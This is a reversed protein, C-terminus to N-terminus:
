TEKQQQDTPASVVVKEKMMREVKAVVTGVRMVNPFEIPNLVGTPKIVMDGSGFGFVWHRFTDARQKQIAMGTTDYVTEEGGIETRVRVQGPTFIMYTQRDFLAFNIIWLVFLVTSILLYGGMNIHISLQGLKHFIIDWWGAAAFILTLMIVSVFVFVTWLGRISVSTITIVILLVVTFISGLARSRSIFIVPEVPWLDGEEDMYLPLKMDKKLILVDRVEMTGKEDVQVKRDAAAETGAPVVALHGDQFYTILAFLYGLAWIPWWYFLNSHRYVVVRETARTPADKPPAPPSQPVPASSM